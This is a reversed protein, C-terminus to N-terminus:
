RLHVSQVGQKFSELTTCDVLHQPLGNWLRIADPSFSHRYTDTRTFPVFFRQSHGRAMSTTPQLMTSPIAILGNVIRYMMIVRAHARREQLTDWGLREIMSTVSSTTRFDNYIYRASKRQVAELRDINAKTYPDWLVSAYETLPRVLTTYCVEKTASPCHHLNRQIFARTSNAKKAINGIHQNWSLSKHLTVGLYKTAEVEELVHGHITYKGQLPKKKSTIRIVQCKQPHFEMLWDKEWRQLGDLDVQLKSCDEATRIRRYLASDDAFLKVTSGASIYEPLDNIYILFLLPGLVSGQPVGSEVAADNSCVGDVRVRQRNELFDRIWQLTTGRIGYYGIKYMLREHPVKDFAKAFDLLILDVQDKDDYNRALEQVTTILQSECSRKQRFGHQADTLINHAELHRRVSSSIIHELTKCIVATLSVPRYNAAKNRDGKKFIPVVEAKKWDSPIIGQDLSAQFFVTLVPSLELALEKLLRTPIEDPGSAKHIGLSSLQKLVGNESVTIRHMAPHTSPGKDKINTKDENSNFVSSFQDNLIDAKSKSDSHTIGSQNKLPAVGANECRKSNIYRWFRKPNSTADPSIIEKVYEAHAKKCEQRVTTKLQQYRKFDKENRTKRAKKYSRKKRRTLRKINTNIWVQNHRSTSMKSPVHKEMSELLHAKIDTWMEAVSSTPTYKSMFLDRFAAAHTKLEEFNARKWLLIKRKVPKPRQAEIDSDIYVVDHDSIGPLTECKNILSPRNTMFIDLINDKRTPSSVMQEMNCNNITELLQRNIDGRYQNGQITNDTWRIDQLNLDGGMWVVASRNNKVIKEVTSCLEEM